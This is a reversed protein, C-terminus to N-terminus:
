KTGGHAQHAGQHRREAPPRQKAVRKKKIVSAASEGANLSRNGSRVRKRGRTSRSQHAERMFQPVEM